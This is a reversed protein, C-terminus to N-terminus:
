RSTEETIPLPCAPILRRFAICDPQSQKNIRRAPSTSTEFAPDPETLPTTSLIASNKLAQTTAVVDLWVGEHTIKWFHCPAQQQNSERRSWVRLLGGLLTIFQYNALWKSTDCYLLKMHSKSFIKLWSVM